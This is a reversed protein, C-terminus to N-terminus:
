DRYKYVTYVTNANHVNNVNHLYHVFHRKVSNSYPKEVPWLM